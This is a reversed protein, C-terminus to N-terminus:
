RSLAAIMTRVYDLNRRISPDRSDLHHARELMNQIKKLEKILDQRESNPMSQVRSLVNDLNLSNVVNVAPNNLYKALQKLKKRIVPHQPGVFDDAERLIKEAKEVTTLVKSLPSSDQISSVMVEARRNAISALKDRLLKSKPIHSLGLRLVRDAEEFAKNKEYKKAERFVADGIDNEVQEAQAGFSIAKEWYRFAEDLNGASTAQALKTFAEALVTQAAADEPFQDLYEELLPIAERLQGERIMVKALGVPTLANLVDQAPSFTSFTELAVRAIEEVKNAIGLHKWMLPGSPIVPNSIKGNEQLMVVTEHLAKAIDLELAVQARLNKHRDVDNKKDNDSYVKIYQDHIDKIIKSITEHRLKEIEDDDIPKEYVFERAEDWRRWYEYSEVVLAWNGFAKEWSRDREKSNSIGEAEIAQRHYIMALQHAVDARNPYRVQLKELHSIAEKMEVASIGRMLATTQIAGNYRHLDPNDPDVSIAQDLYMTAQPWEEQAVHCAAQYVLLETVSCRALAYDEIKIAKIYEEKAQEYDKQAQLAAAVLSHVEADSSDDAFRQADELRGAKIMVTTAIREFEPKLGHTNKQSREITESM